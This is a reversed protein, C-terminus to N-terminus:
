DADPMATTATARAIEGSLRAGISRNNNRIPYEWRDQTGSLRSPTWWWQEALEGKDFPPNGATM